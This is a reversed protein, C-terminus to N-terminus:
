KVVFKKGNAIYVGKPLGKTVDDAKAQKILAGSLSYVKVLTNGDSGDNKKLMVDIIGTTDGSNGGILSSVTYAIAPANVATSPHLSYAEFPRVERFNNVFLSGAPYGKYEQNVNLAFVDSSADMRQYAPIFSVSGKTKQIPDSVAVNVNEASFTINGNLNYDDAYVDANPMCILYPVNASINSAPSIYNDNYEDLTYLWFPRQRNYNRYSNFPTPTYDSGLKESVISGVNFPLAITEWGCSVGVETKQQFNRTYSIKKATFAVPVYFNNNGTADSLAIDNATGNVVVNHVSTPADSANQVYLLLNPNNVGSLADAPLAASTNWCVAALQQCNSFIGSGVSSLSAPAVFSVLNSNAFANDPISLQGTAEALNLFKLNQMTRITEFESSNIPGVVTMKEVKDAGCWKIADSIHGASSLKLTDGNYFYEIEKTAVESDSAFSKEAIVSVTGLDSVTIPGDYYISPAKGGMGYYMDVDKDTTTATVYRGDFSLTPTALQQGDMEEIYQFDWGGANQYAEKKGKPVYLTAKSFLAGWGFVSYGNISTPYKIKSVISVLYDCGAFVENGFSTVSNPIEVYKLDNYSLSGWELKEVGYPLKLSDLGTCGRFAADGLIKIGRPVVTNKCGFILRNNATEIIANCGNRSDYVTNNPDVKVTALADCWNFAESEIRTVSSPIYISTLADCDAFASYGITTVSSPISIGMLNKLNYFAQNGIEVVGNPIVTSATAKLLKNSATEILANCNNRSDYHTNGADVKISTIPNGSFADNGISTTTTPIVIETIGCSRFAAEGISVVNKPISISKLNNCEAFAYQAITIISEPLDVSTLDYCYQFAQNGINRIGNSIKLTRLSRNYFAQAGIGIVKYSAGGIIVNESIVVDTLNNYEGRILTAIKSDIVYSYMFGDDGIGEQPEGEIVDAFMNWGDFAQYKAATGKPVYLTASSPTFITKQESESWSQNSSFVYQSIESPSSIRSIVSSLKSCDRVLYNGFSVLSSPLVLKTMNVCSQFAGEGISTVGEPLDLSTMKCWVFAYDGITKLTSPLELESLGDCDYFARSGITEVGSEIKVSKINDLNYFARAGIGKVTYSVGNVKISGPITVSELDSYNGAIVKATAGGETYIYRLGDIETEAPEGEEIGAFMTWGEFGQYKSTTGTPVYLTALCPTYTYTQTDSNWQQNAFVNLNVEFPSSIRSIVSLLSTTGTFLGGGISSLTSPLYVTKISNCYSFVNNGLTTLGEPLDITTLADCNWFAAYEITRLTSPLSLSALSYCGECIDQDITEIGESLTLSTIESGKFALQGIKIVSYIIGGNSVTAPVVIDGSYNAKTNWDTYNECTVEVTKADADLINYYLGGSEFDYAAARGSVLLVVISLLIFRLKKM